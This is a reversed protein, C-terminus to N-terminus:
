KRKREGVVRRRLLWGRRRRRLLLLGTAAHRRRRGLGLSRLSARPQERKPQARKCRRERLEAGGSHNVKGLRTGKTCTKRRWRRM